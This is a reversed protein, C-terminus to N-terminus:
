VKGLIDIEQNSSQSPLHKLILSKTNRIDVFYPIIVIARQFMIIIIIIIIIVIAIIVIIIVIFM